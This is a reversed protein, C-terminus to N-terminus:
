KYNLLKYIFLISVMWLILANLQHALAIFVPVGYLLTIVGLFFQATIVLLILGFENYIGCLRIYKKYLYWWFLLIVVILIALNRHIFQVFAANGLLGNNYSASSYLESPFFEGNMDPWTNYVLGAHLGAVFAGFIIQIFLLIFWIKYSLIAFPPFVTKNNEAKIFKKEYIIDLFLWEILMFIIFAVSLHLALRFHSVYVNDQLGSKVMIWGIGGQLGGLLLIGLMRFLLKKSVSKRITFLIMPIFFVIGIARGLLRHFFEPWFITKFEELSMHTNIAKYQPINQYGAFEEEWEQQNLPPIVGHILKWKTISLGSGSLRTYGGVVVMGAVLLMCLLLWAIIKKKDRSVLSSSM